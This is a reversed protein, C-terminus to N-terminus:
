AVVALLLAAVLVMAGAGFMLVSGAEAGVPPLPGQAARLAADAGAVVASGELPLVVFAGGSALREAVEAGEGGGLEDEDPEEEEDLCRSRVAVVLIVCLIMPLFAGVVMWVLCSRVAPDRSTTDM